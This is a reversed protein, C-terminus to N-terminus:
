TKPNICNVTVTFNTDSCSYPRLYKDSFVAFAHMKEVTLRLYGSNAARRVVFNPGLWLGCVRYM